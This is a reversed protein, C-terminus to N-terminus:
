KRLLATFYTRSDFAKYIHVSVCLSVCLSLALRNQLSGDLRHLSNTGGVFNGHIIQLHEM